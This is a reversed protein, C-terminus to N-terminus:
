IHPAEWTKTKNQKTKNQKKPPSILWKSQGMVGFVQFKPPEGFYFHYLIPGENRNSSPTGRGQGV